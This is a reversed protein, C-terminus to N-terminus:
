ARRARQRVPTKNLLQSPEHKDSALPGWAPPSESNLILHNDTGGSGENVLSTSGSGHLKHAKDLAVVISPTGIDTTLKSIGGTCCCLTATIIILAAIFIAAEKM